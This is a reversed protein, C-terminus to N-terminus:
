PTAERGIDARWPLRERDRMIDAEIQDLLEADEAFLGILPDKPAVALWEVEQRVYDEFPKDAAEAKERLLRIAEDSLEITITM